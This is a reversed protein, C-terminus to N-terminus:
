ELDDCLNKFVPASFLPITKKVQLETTRKTNYCALSFKGFRFSIKTM